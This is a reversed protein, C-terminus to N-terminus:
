HGGTSVCHGGSWVFHGTNSVDQGGVAVAQTLPWVCHGGTSVCHGGVGVTHTVPSVWHGGTSVLHGGISVWHGGIGVFHGGTSVCHGPTAVCHGGTSVCHGGIGVLHLTLSVSQGITSDFHGGTIEAHGAACVLQTEPSLAFFFYGSCPARQTARARALLALWDRPDSPATGSPAAGKRIGVSLLYSDRSAAASTLRNWHAPFLVSTMRPFHPEGKGRVQQSDREAPRFPQQQERRSQPHRARRQISHAVREGAVFLTSM